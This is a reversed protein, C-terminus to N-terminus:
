PKKMTEEHVLLGSDAFNQPDSRGHDAFDFILLDSLTYLVDRLCPEALKVRPIIDPLFRVEKRQYNLDSHRTNEVDISAAETASVVPMINGKIRVLGFLHSSLPAIPHYRMISSTLFPM